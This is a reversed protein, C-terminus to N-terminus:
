MLEKVYETPRIAVSTESGGVANLTKLKKVETNGFEIPQRKNEVYSIIDLVMMTGAGFSM